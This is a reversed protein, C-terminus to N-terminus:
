DDKRSRSAPPYCEQPVPSHLPEGRLFRIAEETAEVEMRLRCDVTCSGMHQTLIINDLECLPGHYPEEEYTDLAAARLRGSALAEYLATEDVIGGRSTNILAADPKMLALERAGILGQTRHDLPVHLSVIDAKALLTPLDTWHVGLDPGLLPLTRIDHALVACGFQQLLRIVRFGIRGVGVVGITLDSLRRGMYREWQGARVRRDASTIGRALDLILGMTLETVAPSPADPTYSVAVGYDRAAGLDVGDLGIGVRSILRLERAQAIDQEGILETGAVLVKVERILAGIEGAKLKRGLPNILYSLGANELLQVPHPDIAGFPVTSIFVDPM